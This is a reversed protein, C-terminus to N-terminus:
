KSKLDEIIRRCVLGDIQYGRANVFTEQAATNTSLEGRLYKSVQEKLAEYDLTEIGIGSDIFGSFDNKSYDM